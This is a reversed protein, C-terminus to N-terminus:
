PPPAQGSRAVANRIMDQLWDRQAQSLRSRRRCSGLFDIEKETLHIHGQAEVDLVWGAHRGEITQPMGADQWLARALTGGGHGDAERLKKYAADLQDLRAAYQKVLDLAQDREAMAEVFDSGRLGAKRILVVAKSLAAEAEGAHATTAVIDLMVALQKLDPALM